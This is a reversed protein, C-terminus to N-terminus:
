LPGAGSPDLRMQDTMRPLQKSYGVRAHTCGAALHCLMLNARHDGYGNSAPDEVEVGSFRVVVEGFTLYGFAISFAGM